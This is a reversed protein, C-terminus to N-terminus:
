TVASSAAKYSIEAFLADTHTDNLFQRTMAAHYSCLTVCINRYIFKPISHFQDPNLTKSLVPLM